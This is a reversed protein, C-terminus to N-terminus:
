IKKKRLNEIHLNDQNYKDPDYGLSYSKQLQQTLEFGMLLFEQLPLDENQILYFHYIYTLCM